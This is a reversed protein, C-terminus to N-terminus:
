RGVQFYDAIIRESFASTEFGERDRDRNHMDAFMRPVYLTIGHVDASMHPVELKIEHTDASM